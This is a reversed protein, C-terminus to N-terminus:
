QPLNGKGNGSIFAAGFIEKKYPIKGYRQLGSKVTV